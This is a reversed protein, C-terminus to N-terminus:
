STAGNEIALLSQIRSDIATIRAACEAQLAKKERELNAVIGARPDFNDPVDVTFEQQGVVVYDSSVDTMEYPFVMFKTAPVYELKEADYQEVQQAHVVGKITVKM